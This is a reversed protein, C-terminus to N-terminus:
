EDLVVAPIRLNVLILTISVLSKLTLRKQNLEEGASM